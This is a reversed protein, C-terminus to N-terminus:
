GQEARGDGHGNAQGNAQGNSGDADHGHAQAGEGHGGTGQSGAGAGDESGNGQGQGGVTHGQDDGDRHSTPAPEEDTDARHRGGVAPTRSADEMHDARHRTLPGAAPGASVTTPAPMQGLHRDIPMRRDWRTVADLSSSPSRSLVVPRPATHLAVNPTGVPVVSGATHHSTSPNSADFSIAAVAVWGGTFPVLTALGVTGAARLWPYAPVPRARHRATASPRQVRRAVASTGRHRM